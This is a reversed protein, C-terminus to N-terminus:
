SPRRKCTYAGNASRRFTREVIDFGTDLHKQGTHAREDLWWRRM